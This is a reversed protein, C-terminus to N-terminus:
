KASAFGARIKGDRGILPQPDAVRGLPRCGPGIGEMGLDDKM